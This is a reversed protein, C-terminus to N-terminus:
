YWIAGKHNTYSPNYKLTLRASAGEILDINNGEGEYVNGNDTYVTTDPSISSVEAGIYSLFGDTVFRM